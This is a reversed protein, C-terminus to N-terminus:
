RAAALLSSVPRVARGALQACRVYALIREALERALASSLTVVIRRRVVSRRRQVVRESGGSRAAAHSAMRAIFARAAAGLRGFSEQVFPVFVWREPDFSPGMPYRARKVAEQARAAYGNVAAAGRAPTCYKATAPACVSNDIIVGKREYSADGCMHLAGPLVVTDARDGDRNAFTVDENLFYPAGCSRLLQGLM